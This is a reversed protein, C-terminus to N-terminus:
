QINITRSVKQAQPKKPLTIQLVGNDYHASVKDADITEDMTFTRTFSQRRYERRLWRNKDDHDNSEEKHDFSVILNDGSFELSFDQKKLGPAILEVEYNKDTERVNVPVQNHMQMGSGGWFSDDFFRNLNQQFLQDMATGFTAQRGDEKKIINAM